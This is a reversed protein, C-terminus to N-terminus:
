LVQWVLVRIANLTTVLLVLAILWAEIYLSHQHRPVPNSQVDKGSRKLDM